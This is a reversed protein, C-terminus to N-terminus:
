LFTMDYNDYCLCGDQAKHHRAFRSVWLQGTLSTPRAHLTSSSLVLRFNSFKQHYHHPLSYHYHDLRNNCDHLLCCPQWVCCDILAHYKRNM